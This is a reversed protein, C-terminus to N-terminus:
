GACHHSLCGSFPSGSPQVSPSCSTPSFPPVQIPQSHVKYSFASLGINYSYDTVYQMLNRLRMMNERKYPNIFYLM